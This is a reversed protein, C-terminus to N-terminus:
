GMEEPDHGYMSMKPQGRGESHLGQQDMEPLNQEAHRYASKIAERVYFEVTQNPNRAIIEPLSAVAAAEIVQAHTMIGGVPFGYDVRDSRSVLSQPIYVPSAGSESLFGLGVYLLIQRM